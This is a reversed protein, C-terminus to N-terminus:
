KLNEDDKRANLRRIGELVGTTKERIYIEGLDKEWKEKSQDVGLIFDTYKLQKTGNLSYKLIVYILEVFDAGINLTPVMYEHNRFKNKYAYEYISKGVGWLRILKVDFYHQKNEYFNKVKKHGFNIEAPHSLVHRHCDLANWGHICDEMKLKKLHERIYILSYNTSDELIKMSELNAPHTRFYESKKEKLGHFLNYVFHRAFSAGIANRLQMAVLFLGSEMLFKENENKM